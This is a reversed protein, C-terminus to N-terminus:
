HLHRNLFHGMQNNIVNDLIKGLLFGVLTIVFLLVLILVRNLFHSAMLLRILKLFRLISKLLDQFWPDCVDKLFTAV